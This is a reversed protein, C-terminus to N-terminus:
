GPVVFDWIGQVAEVATFSDLDRAVHIVYEHGLKAATVALLAVVFRGPSAMLPPAADAGGRRAWWERGAIFVFWFEFVNAFAFLLWRESTVEFAVFGLLRYAYLVVAVRRAAPDRWSLAVALFLALYLQDLWKDTSQYDPVGGLDLLNMLFLDSLDVAIVILAGAFMWRLVPLSGVIRVLAIVVVELTV